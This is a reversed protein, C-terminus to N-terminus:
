PHDTPTPDAFLTELRWQALEYENMPTGMAADPDFQVGTRVCQKFRKRAVEREGALLFVEGAYYYAECLQEPNNGAIGDAVLEDPSLEGALCRFIRRLWDEKVDRLAADLVRQAERDRGHARLILFRRADSYSPRGLLIRVRECDRLAEDTRGLIWLPTIRHYYHWVAGPKEGWNELVNDYCEVAKEYERAHRYAHALYVQNNVRRYQEIARRFDGQKAFVVGKFLTWKEAGEGLEILKDAGALAGTLDGANLRLWTLRDWALIHSSQQQVAQEARQLAREPKLTAFSRLYYTEATDTPEHETIAALTDARVTNGMARYIETLLARCAWFAPDAELENELFSVASWQQQNRYLTQAWVLAAEPLERHQNLLTHAAGLGQTPIQGELNQQIHLADRRARTSEERTRALERQRWHVGAMLSAVSLAMVAVILAAALRHKRMKKRLVYFGSPRRALIPEGQLYRRIDEGMEQASPYRDDREKELAKLIIAELEANVRGSLSSPQTPATEIIRQIVDSPRGSTDFPLSGTIAQFLMVGLAYVDTRADIGEPIGAAQEPSLYSLTGVVDGARSISTTQTEGSGNHDTAKALGFDLIHPKEEKDILVNSPKLDRHIVGQRHAYEVAECLQIFLGLTGRVDPSSTAWHRDLRSGEIHDMAYYPQGAVEGGELVKVISPHELRAALEVERQFRRRAAESAFPGGLMIKLAVIRKTSRQLAKYVVGMGGRGIEEILDYGQIEPLGRAGTNSRAVATKEARTRATEILPLGELSRQLLEGTEPHEAAFREPTLDEGAEQRDIFESVLRCILDDAEADPQHPSPNM